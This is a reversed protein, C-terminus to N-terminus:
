KVGFATAMELLQNCESKIQVSNILIRRRQRRFADKIFTPGCGLRFVLHNEWEPQYIETIRCFITTQRRTSTM